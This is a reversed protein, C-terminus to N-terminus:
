SEVNSLAALRETEKVVASIGPKTMHHTKLKDLVYFLARDYTDRENRIQEWTKGSDCTSTCGMMGWDACNCSPKASITPASDLLDGSAVRTPRNNKNMFPKQNNHM